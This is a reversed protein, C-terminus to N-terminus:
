KKKDKFIRTRLRKKSSPKDYKVVLRAIETRPFDKELLEGATTWSLNFRYVMQVVRWLPLERRGTRYHSFTQERMGLRNSLETWSRCKKRLFKLLKMEDM